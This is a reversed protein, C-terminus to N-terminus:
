RGELGGRAYATISAPHSGAEDSVLVFGDRTLALGEPQPHHGPVERIGVPTGQPTLEVLLKERTLLVYNGSRPDIALDTPHLDHLGHKDHELPKLEEMPVTIRELGAGGPLPWRYLVLDHDLSKQHVTKCAFILAEAAPDFAMAEFECHKGLGTDVEQYAVRAGDAGESFRYLVGDSTLLYFHDGAVAISEFDGQLPQDGLQFAKVIAGRRYDIQYVVGVNDDHAFLRGDPTLVLGSIERLPRPLEWRALPKPDAESDSKSLAAFRAERQALLSSDRRAAQGPDPNCALALLLLPLWFVREPM